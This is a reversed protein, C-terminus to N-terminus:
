RKSIMHSELLYYDQLDGIRGMNRMGSRRAVREVVNEGGPVHVAIQNHYIYGSSSYSVNALLLLTVKTLVRLNAM